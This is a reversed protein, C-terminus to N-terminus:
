IESSTDKKIKPTEISIIDEDFTNKKGKEIGGLEKDLKRLFDRRTEFLVKTKKM